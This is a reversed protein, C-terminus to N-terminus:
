LHRPRVDPHIVPSPAGRRAIRLVEVSWLLGRWSSAVAGLVLGGFWVGVFAVVSVATAFWEHGEILRAQMGSVAVGTAVLAPGIAIALGVIGLMTTLATTVPRRIVHGVAHGLAPVVADGHMVVRRVAIGGVIEGLQWGVVVLIIPALADSLVRWAIPTALDSPLILEGYVAEGIPRAAAVLALSVPILGGLRVGVLRGILGLRLGPTPPGGSLRGHLPDGPVLTDALLADTAAGIATGILLVTLLIVGTIALGLVTGPTPGSATVATPGLINALGVPSPFSVIPVLFLVIGGRALFGALGIPWLSPRELVAASAAAVTSRWGPGAAASVAASTEPGPTDLSVVARV